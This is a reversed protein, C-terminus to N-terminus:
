TSFKIFRQLLYSTCDMAFSILFFQEL